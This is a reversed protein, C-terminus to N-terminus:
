LPPNYLASLRLAAARAFALTVRRRTGADLAHMPAEVVIEGGFADAVILGADGPFIDPPVECTTAFFLRDCHRRYDMWKHDARFDESSSKVEVIWIEGDSGLAVLDARRGSALPLESVVSHGLAHLLRTAGRAIALAAPSQRGDVPLAAALSSMSMSHALGPLAVGTAAPRFRVDRM